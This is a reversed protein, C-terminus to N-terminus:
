RHSVGAHRAHQIVDPHNRILPSKRACLVSFEHGLDVSAGPEEMYRALFHLAQRMDTSPMCCSPMCCIHEREAHSQQLQHAAGRWFPKRLMRLANKCRATKHPKNVGAGKPPQLLISRLQALQCQHSGHLGVKASHEQIQAICSISFLQQPVDSAAMARASHVTM